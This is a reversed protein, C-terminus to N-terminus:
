LGARLRFTLKASHIITGTPSMDVTAPPQPVRDLESVTESAQPSGFREFSSLKGCGGGLRHICWPGEAFRTEHAEGAPPGRFM